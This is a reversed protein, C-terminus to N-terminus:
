NYSVLLINILLLTINKPIHNLINENPMSFDVRRLALTIIESESEKLMASILSKDGFKGTGTLLRNKFVKNGLILEDM